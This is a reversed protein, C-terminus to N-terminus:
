QINCGAPCVRSPKENHLVVEEVTLAKLGNAGIFAGQWVIRGAANVYAQM